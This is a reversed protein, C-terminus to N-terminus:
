KIKISNIINQFDKKILCKVDEATNVLDMEFVVELMGQGNQYINSVIYKDKTVGEIKYKLIGDKMNSYIFESMKGYIQEWKRRIVDEKFESYM